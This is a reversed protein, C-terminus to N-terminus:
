KKQAITLLNTAQWWGTKKNELSYYNKIIEFGTKKLLKEIEKKTFAHYYLPLKDQGWHTIIDNWTLGGWGGLCPPSATEGWDPPALPPKRRLRWWSKKSRVNWLNWNTMLLYGNPKLANYLNSIAQQRLKVSPIHNLVAICFIANFENQYNLNLINNVYFKSNLIKFKSNERKNKIRYELNKRGIEIMKASNDIGTYNVERGILLQALRGNGCGVDLINYGDKIYNNVLFELESWSRSRTQSFNQAITNYTKKTQALLLEATKKNM